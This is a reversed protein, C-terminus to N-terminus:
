AGTENESRSIEAYAEFTIPNDVRMGKTELEGLRSQHAAWMNSISANEIMSQVVVIPAYGTQDGYNKTLLITGDRFATHIKVGLGNPHCFAVKDGSAFIAHAALFSTGNHIATVEGKSRMTLAILAPFLLPFRFVSFTEGEVFLFNFGLFELQRFESQYRVRLRQEIEPSSLLIHGIPGITWRMLRTLEDEFLSVAICFAIIPVSIAILFPHRLGKGGFLGLNGAVNIAILFLGIFLLSRKGEAHENSKPKSEREEEQM